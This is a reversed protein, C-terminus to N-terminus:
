GIFDSEKERRDRGRLGKDALTCVNSFTLTGHELLTLGQNQVTLDLDLDLWYDHMCGLMNMDNKM